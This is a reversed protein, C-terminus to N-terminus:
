KKQAGLWAEWGGKLVHVPALNFERLRRAVATSNQCQRSSCYVVAPKGAPWAQLLAPVLDDWEEEMLRLAGPVHGMAFEAEPRADVWLFGGPDRVVDAVAIEGERLPDSFAPRKPHFLASLAAPVLALLILAVAQLLARRMVEPLFRRECRM